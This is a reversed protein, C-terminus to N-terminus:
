DVEKVNCYTGHSMESMGRCLAVNLTEFCELHSVSM